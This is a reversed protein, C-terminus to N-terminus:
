QIAYESPTLMIAAMGISRVPFVEDRPSRLSQPVRSRHQLLLRRLSGVLALAGLQIEAGPTEGESRTRGLISQTALPSHPYTSSSIGSTMFFEFFRLLTRVESGTCSSTGRGKPSARCVGRAKGASSCTTLIGPMIDRREASGPREPDAVIDRLAQKILDRYRRAANQWVAGSEM